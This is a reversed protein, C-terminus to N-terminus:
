AYLDLRPAVARVGHAAAVGAYVALAARSGSGVQPGQGAHAHMRMRATFEDASAGSWARTRGLVEGEVVREVPPRTRRSDIGEAAAIERASRPLHSGSVLAHTVGINM